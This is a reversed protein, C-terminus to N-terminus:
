IKKADKWKELVPTLPSRPVLPEKKQLSGKALSRGLDATGVRMKKLTLGGTLVEELEFPWRFRKNRKRSQGFVTMECKENKRNLWEFLVDRFVMLTYREQSEGWYYGGPRRYMEGAYIANVIIIDQPLHDPDKIEKELVKWPFSDEGAVFYLRQNKWKRFKARLFHIKMKWIHEFLEKPVIPQEIM